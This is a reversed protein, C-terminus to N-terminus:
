KEEELPIPPGWVHGPHDRRAVEARGNPWLRFFTCRDESVWIRPEERAAQTQDVPQM